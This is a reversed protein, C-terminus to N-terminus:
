YRGPTGGGALGAVHPPQAHYPAAPAAPLCEVPVPVGVVPHVVETPVARKCIVDTILTDGAFTPGTSMQEWYTNDAGVTSGYIGPAVQVPAGAQGGPMHAFPPVQMIPGQMVPGQPIPAQALHAQVMPAQMVPGQPAGAPAVIVPNAIMHGNPIQGVPMLPGPTNDAIRSLGTQPGPAQGGRGSANLATQARGPDRDVWSSPVHAIGPVFDLSGYQRPAFRSAGAQPAPGAVPGSRHPVPPLAGPLRPGTGPIAGPVAGLGPPTAIVGPEFPAPVSGEGARCYTTSEPNCIGGFQSPFDDLAVNPEQAHIRTISVHPSRRFDVNRLHDMPPRISVLTDDYDAPSARFITTGGGCNETVACDDAWRGQWEDDQAAAVTAVSLSGFALASVAMLTKRM